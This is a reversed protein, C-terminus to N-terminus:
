RAPEVGTPTGTATDAAPVTTPATTPATPDVPLALVMTLGGGPTPEAHLTGGMAETFGRAV